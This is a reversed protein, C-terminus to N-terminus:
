TVRAVNDKGAQVSELNFTNRLYDNNKLAEAAAENDWSSKLLVAHALSVSIGADKSLKTTKDLIFDAVKAPGIM